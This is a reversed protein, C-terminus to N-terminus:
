LLVCQRQRVPGPAKCYEYNRRRVCAINYKYQKRLLYEVGLQTSYKIAGYVMIDDFVNLFM